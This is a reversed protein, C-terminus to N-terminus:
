APVRETGPEVTPGHTVDTPQDLRADPHEGGVHSPPADLADHDAPLDIGAGAVGVHTDHSHQSAGSNHLRKAERWLDKLIEKGAVRLGDTHSHGATWEPHTVATRARRADYKIRYPSCRCGEAHKAQDGDRCGTDIQKLCSEAVLYARTKADTSWNARQGKRRKAAVGADAAPTERSRQGPDGSQAGGASASQIDSSPQSAPPTHGSVFGSRTDAPSHDAPLVHDGCYAWLQSVTRPGEPHRVTGNENFTQPHWFPDGIASLLRGIQKEGLGRQAKVWPWIASRRLARGMGLKADNELAALAQAIGAVRAVDPHAETLGFGRMVGDDDPKDTTLIRVRNDMAIRAKELDSHITAHVFLFPDVVPPEGNPRANRMAPPPTPAGASPDAPPIAQDNTPPPTLGAGARVHQNDRVSQSTGPDHEGGVAHTRDDRYGHDAPLNTGPGVGDHRTDADQRDLRTATTTM